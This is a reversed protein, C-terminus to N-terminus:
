VSQVAESRETWRRLIRNAAVGLLLGITIGSVDAYWDYWDATRGFPPQTLEDMGGFIAVGVALVIWQWWRVRSAWFLSMSLLFTLGAYATFHMVKDSNEPLGLDPLTPWHTGLVLAIWYAALVGIAVRHLRKSLQPTM